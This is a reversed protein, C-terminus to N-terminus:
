VAPNTVGLKVAGWVWDGSCIILVERLTSEACMENGCSPLKNNQGEWRWDSPELHKKAAGVRRRRSNCIRVSFWGNLQGCGFQVDAPTRQFNLKGSYLACTLVGWPSKAAEPLTSEAFMENGCSPLKNKQEKWLGDSPESHEKAAGVRCRRSNCIRVSFWGYLQECGFQM